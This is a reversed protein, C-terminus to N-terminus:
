GVRWYSQNPQVFQQLKVFQYSLRHSIELRIVTTSPPSTRYFLLHQIYVVRENDTKRQRKAKRVPRLFFFCERRRQSKDIPPGLHRPISVLLPNGCLRVTRAHEPVPFVPRHLHTFSTNKQPSLFFLRIEFPPPCRRCRHRRHHSGTYIGTSSSDALRRRRRNTSIAFRHNKRKKGM